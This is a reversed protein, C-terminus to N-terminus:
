SPLDITSLKWQRLPDDIRTEFRRAQEDNYVESWYKVLKIGARVIYHEFIPCHQLFDRHREKTCFGMVYEM